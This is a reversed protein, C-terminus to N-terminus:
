ALEKSFRLKGDNKVEAGMVARVSGLSVVVVDRAPRLPTPQVGTVILLGPEDKVLTGPKAWEELRAERYDDVSESTFALQEISVGFGLRRFHDVVDADSMKLRRRAEQM